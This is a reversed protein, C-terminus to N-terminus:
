RASAASSSRSTRKARTAGGHLSAAESLWAPVQSAEHAARSGPEASEQAVAAMARLAAFRARLQPSFKAEPLPEPKGAEEQGQEEHQSGELMLVDGPVELPMWGPAGGHQLMAAAQRAGDAALNAKMLAYILLALMPTILLIM